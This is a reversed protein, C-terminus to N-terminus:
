KKVADKTVPEKNLPLSDAVGVKTAPVAAVYPGPEQCVPLDAAPQLPTGVASKGKLYAAAVRDQARCLLYASMQDAAKTKAAAEDKKAMAEPTAEPLKARAPAILALSALVLAAAACRQLSETPNSLRM